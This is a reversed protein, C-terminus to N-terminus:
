QKSWAGNNSQWEDEDQASFILFESTIPLVFFRGNFYMSPTANVGAAEGEKFQRSVVADFKGANAEKLMRDGDLGLQKAYAKLSYDDLQEQHTFLLESMQWFKKQGKAYEAVQAAITARPHANTIPFYKSCLRVKGPMAAVMEMLPKAARACHPCQYDSFEVVVVKSKPDGMSGCDQEDLHARKKAPFSSYYREVTDIIAGTPPPQDETILAKILETMRLAHTDTIKAQLCRALTDDCGAYDFTDGAIDLFQARQRNNLSSLDARPLIQQARENTLEGPSGEPAAALLAAFLFFIPM